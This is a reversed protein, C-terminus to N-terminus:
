GWCWHEPDGKTVKSSYFKWGGERGLVKHNWKPGLPLTWVRLPVGDVFDRQRPLYRIM